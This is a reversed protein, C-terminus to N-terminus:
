LVELVMWCTRMLTWREPCPMDSLMLRFREDRRSVRAPLRELMRMGVTGYDIFSILTDWGNGEFGEEM